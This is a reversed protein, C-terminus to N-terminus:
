NIFCESTIDGRITEVKLNPKISSYYLGNVFGNKSSVLLEIDPNVCFINASISKIEGKIKKQNLNIDGEEIEINIDSFPAKLNINCSNVKIITKFDIPVLLDITNAVTKHVGLKDNYSKLMPSSIEQICLERNDHTVKLLINEKFEGEQKYNIYISNSISENITIHSIFDLKLFVFDFNDSNWKKTNINQSYSNFNLM